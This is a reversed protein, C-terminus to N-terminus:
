FAVACFEFAGFLSVPNPSSSILVSGDRFLRRPHPLPLPPRRRSLVRTPPPQTRSRRRRYPLRLLDHRRSFRPARSPPPYSLFRSVRVPARVRFCLVPRNLQDELRIPGDAEIVFGLLGNRVLLGLPGNRGGALCVAPLPTATNKKFFSLLFISVVYM